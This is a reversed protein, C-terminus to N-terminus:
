NTSGKMKTGILGGGFTENPLIYGMVNTYRQSFHKNDNANKSEKSHAVSPGPLVVSLYFRSYFRSNSNKTKM